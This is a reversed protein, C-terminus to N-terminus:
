REEGKKNEPKEEVSAIECKPMPEDGYSLPRDFAVSMWNGEPHDHWALTYRITTYVAWCRQCIVDKKIEPELLIHSAARLLADANDRLECANPRSWDLVLETIREFQGIKLRSLLETALMVSQAQERTLELRVTESM